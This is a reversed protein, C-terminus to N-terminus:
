LDHLFLMKYFGYLKKIPKGEAGGTFYTAGEGCADSCMVKVLCNICPCKDVSASLEIHDRIFCVKYHSCKDCEKNGTM